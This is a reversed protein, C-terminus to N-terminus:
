FAAAGPVSILSTLPIGRVVGNLEVPLLYDFAIAAGTAAIGLISTVSVFGGGFGLVAASATSTGAIRLAAITTSGAVTRGVRLAPISASASTVQAVGNADEGGDGIIRAGYENSLDYIMSM